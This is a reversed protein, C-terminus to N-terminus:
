PVNVDHLSPRPADSARSIEEDLEEIAAIIRLATPTFDPDSVNLQIRDLVTRLFALTAPTM